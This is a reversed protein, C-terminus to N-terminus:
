INAAISPSLRTVNVAVDARGSVARIRNSFTGLTM